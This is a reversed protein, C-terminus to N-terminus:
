YWPRVWIAPPEPYPNPLDTHKAIYRILQKAADHTMNSLYFGEGNIGGAEVFISEDDCTLTADQTSFTLKTTM